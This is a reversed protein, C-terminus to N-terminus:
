HCRAIQDAMPLAIVGAIDIRSPIVLRPLAHYTTSRSGSGDVPRLLITHCEPKEVSSSAFANRSSRRTFSRLPRAARLSRIVTRSYRSRHSGAWAAVFSKFADVTDDYVSFISLCMLGRIPPVRRCSNVEAWTCPRYRSMSSSPKDRRLTSNTPVIRRMASFCATVWYWNMSALGASFM